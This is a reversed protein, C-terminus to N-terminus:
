AATFNLCSGVPLTEFCGTGVAAQSGDMRLALENRELRVAGVAGCGPRRPLLAAPSRLFHM